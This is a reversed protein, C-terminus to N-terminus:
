TGARLEADLWALVDPTPRDTIDAFDDRRELFRKVYPCVPVVRMGAARIDALAEGVLRGALGRGAYGEGVETHFLVRRGDRDRYKAVGARTGDVAIEYLQEADVRRVVPNGTM